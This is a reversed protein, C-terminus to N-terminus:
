VVHNGQYLPNIIMYADLIVHNGKQTRLLLLKVIHHGLGAALHLGKVLQAIRILQHIQGDAEHGADPPHLCRGVLLHKQHAPM